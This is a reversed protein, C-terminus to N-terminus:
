FISKFIYASLCQMDCIHCASKQASSYIRNFCLIKTNKPYQFRYYILIIKLILLFLSTTYHSSQIGPSAFLKQQPLKGLCQIKQSMYYTNFNCLLWHMASNWASLSWVRMHPRVFWMKYWQELTLNSERRNNFWQWTKKTGVILINPLSKLTYNTIFRRFNNYYSKKKYFDTNNTM